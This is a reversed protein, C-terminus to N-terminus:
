RKPPEPRGLRNAPSFRKHAERAREEAQAAGYRRIMPSGHSWGALMELDGEQGGAALWDHAFGHRFLHPHVNTDLGAQQARRKVMRYIGMRTLQAKKGFWLARSAAYRPHENLYRLRARLYADLAAAATVDFHPKRGRRGKGMIALTRAQMDVTDLTLQAIEHLRMGTDILLLFIARDRRDYFGRGQCTKLLADIEERSLVSPPTDPVKPSQVRAMPSFELEEEAVCWRFFTALTTYRLYVTGPAYGYDTRLAIVFEELVARSLDVLRTSHEHQELYGVLLAITAQRNVLTYRSLDAAQMARYWSEAAQAVTLSSVVRQRRNTSKPAM